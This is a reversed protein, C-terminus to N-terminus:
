THQRSAFQSLIIQVQGGTLTKPVKRLDGEFCQLSYAQLEGSQRRCAEVLETNVAM